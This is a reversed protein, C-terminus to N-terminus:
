LNIGIIGGVVGSIIGLVLMLITYSNVRFGTNLISSILYLSIVYIGGIIGGKKMGNRNTKKTTILSSIFISICTFVIIGGPIINESVDTYTLIISFVFISILTICFAVVIGNAIRLFVSDVKEIKLNDM